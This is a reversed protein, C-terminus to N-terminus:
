YTYKFLKELVSLFCHGYHSDTVMKIVTKNETTACLFLVDVVYM